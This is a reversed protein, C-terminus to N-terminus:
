GGGSGSLALRIPGRARDARVPRGRRTAAILGEDQMWAPGSPCFTEGAGRRVAHALIAARIARNSPPPAAPAPGPIPMPESM